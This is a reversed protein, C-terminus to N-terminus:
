RGGGPRTTPAFSFAVVERGDPETRVWPTLRLPMGIALHEVEAAIPALVRVGDPLDVLGLGFPVFPDPGRYDGPPRHRVVTYTWLTGEPSLAVPQLDDAGCNPCTRVTGFATEGCPRCASGSLRVASLDDLDGTLLGERIPVRGSGSDSAQHQEPALPQVGQGRVAPRQQHRYPAPCRGALYFTGFVANGGASPPRSPYVQGVGM